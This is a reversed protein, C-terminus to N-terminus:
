QPRARRHDTRCPQQRGEAAGDSRESRRAPCPGDTGAHRGAVIRNRSRSRDPDLGLGREGHLDTWRGGDGRWEPRPRSGAIRGAAPRSAAPAVRARGGGGARGPRIAPDLAFRGRIFAGRVSGLRKGNVWVEAAYNIGNFVLAALDRAGGDPVVFEARFWYDQRGLREPISLNNLGYAPDPYVGNAVYSTLVTGPVVAQLWAHDDFGPTSLSVPTEAVEPAAAFRWAGVDWRGAGAPALPQTQELTVAPAPGSGQERSVPLTAPAQPTTEGVYQMTQLPWHPSGSEFTILDEVPRSWDLPPADGDGGRWLALRAVAGAFPRRAGARPALVLATAVGDPVVQLAAPASDAVSLVLGNADGKLVFPLWGNDPSALPAAVQRGGAAVFMRGGSLGLEAVVAGSKDVLAAVTRPEDLAPGMKVWGRMTWPSGPAIAAKLDKRIPEGAPPFMANVPGALIPGADASSPAPAAQVGTTLVLALLLAFVGYLRHM